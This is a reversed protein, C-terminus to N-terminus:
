PTASDLCRFGALLQRPERAAVGLSRLLLEGPSSVRELGTALPFRQSEEPGQPISVGVRTGNALQEPEAVIAQALVAGRCALQLREDLRGVRDLLGRHQHVAVAGQALVAADVLEPLLEGARRGRVFEHDFAADHERAAARITPLDAVRDR